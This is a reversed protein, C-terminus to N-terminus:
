LLRACADRASLIDPSVRPDKRPEPVTRAERRRIFRFGEAGRALAPAGMARALRGLCSRLLDIQDAPVELRRWITPEVDQLTVKIQAIDGERM